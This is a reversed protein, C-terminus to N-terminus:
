ALWTRTSHITPAATTAVRLYDLHRIAVIFDFPKLDNSAQKPDNGAEFLARSLAYEPM